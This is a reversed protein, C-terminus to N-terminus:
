YPSVGNLLIWISDAFTIDTLTELAVPFLPRYGNKVWHQVTVDSEEFDFARETTLINFALMSFAFVDVASTFKILESSDISLEPAEWRKSIGRYQNLLKLNEISPFDLPIAFSQRSLNGHIKGDIYTNIVVDSVWNTSYDRVSQYYKL